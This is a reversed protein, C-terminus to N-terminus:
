GQAPQPTVVPEATSTASATKGPASAPKTEAATDDGEAPFPKNSFRESVLLSKATAPDVFRSGTGERDWIEVWDKPHGM